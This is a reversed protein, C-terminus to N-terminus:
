DRPSTCEACQPCVGLFSLGLSRVEFGFGDELLEEVRASQVLRVDEVRGCEVCWLHCHGDGAADYRRRGGPGRLTKVLGHGSLYELNRYVTGLSIRPRTRRLREHLEKATPHSGSMRLEDFIAQRSGTMRPGAPERM